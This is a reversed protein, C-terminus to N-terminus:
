LWLVRRGRALRRRLLTASVLALTGGIAGAVPLTTGVLALDHANKNAQKLNALLTDESASYEFVSVTTLPVRAGLVSPPLEVSRTESARMDLVTGDAPAVWLTYDASFTYTLAVSAPLRPLASALAATEGPPLDLSGVLAVLMSKPIANPFTALEEPDTLATTPIAQRFVYAGFGVRRAGVTHSTGAYRMPVSSQIDQVWGPYTHKGTGIPFSVTLGTPRSLGPASIATSPGLTKRDVAYHYSLTTPPQGATAEVVQYDVVAASSNSKLVRATQTIRLPVDKLLLPEKSAPALAAPNLLLKATGTFANTTDTDSPLKAVAPLVAFRTVGAAALLVLGVSVLAAPARWRAAKARHHETSVSSSPAAVEPLRTLLVAVILLLGISLLLSPTYSGHRTKLITMLYVIAVSAQGVLQLVGQSTGEPTPHTVDAAYQMGIPGVSILFFGLELASLYLLFPSSAFAVGLLGPIALLAGALMYPVRIHRRDSLSSISVAGLIGGILMLGGATGAVSSSFGRPKMIDDVWTLIGNFVGMGIFWVALYVVFPRVRLAHRLGDLMLARVEMGPPCPPTAPRERALVIFVVATLLAFLGYAMQVSGVAFSKALPPTLAEGLAIGVLNAFTALGVGTARESPAMWKAPVKTWANIMFPQAVAIGLTAVLAGAYSSGALGRGVACVGMMVSGFGVAVRFGHTDILWAAPLSLPIFVIMFIMALLGVLLHSVNYYAAAQDTISAYSIWLMQMSLNVMMFVGMVVWRYRYVRYRADPVATSSTALADSM